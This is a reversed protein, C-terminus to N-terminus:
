KKVGKKAHSVRANLAPHVPLKAGVKLRYEQDRFENPTAGSKVSARLRNVRKAEYTRTGAAALRELDFVTGAFGHLAYKQLIKGPYAKSPTEKEPPGGTDGPNGYLIYTKNRLMLLDGRGEVTLSGLGKGFSGVVRRQTYIGDTATHIAEYEHELQHIRARTHATIQAAIFPHFMGGAIMDAEEAVKLNANVDSDVYIVTAKNNKRTQIFKGSISNLIFKYMARKPKDKESEKRQYFDDVFRRLPPDNRDKDADYYTGSVRTPKFEGSRLAENLEYGAVCLHYVEQSKIPKFDHTFLSPWRCGIVRGSVTYVGLDPVQRPRSARFDKYLNAHYFSPFSHMAHPYASSIDLSTVGGYWGAAVPMNNKGGHYACISTEIVNRGPQPITQELFQHRFIRAAMDAVSVTQTISFEDHLSELSLGIHYAIVSDRMAYDIFGQDTKAFRREGLGEPRVLKPLTPCFVDAAKALSARYYSYSDVLMIVRNNGSDTIRAFTPAGYAGAVRWGDVSFDFEGSRTSVLDVRHDWFFSVMDFELNHVYVVHQVRAPLSKCWKLFVSTAKDPDSLFIMDDCNEGYFQFSIPHGNMTETDGGYIMKRMVSGRNNVSVGQKLWMPIRLSRCIM